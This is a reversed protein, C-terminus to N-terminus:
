MNNVLGRIQDPTLISDFFNSIATKKVQEPLYAWPGKIPRNAKKWDSISQALIKMDLAVYLIDDVDVGRAKAKKIQDTKHEQKSSNITFQIGIHKEDFTTENKEVEVGRRKTKTSIIFDIKEEVDQYANGPTISLGLDSHDIAIAELAGMMIQEAQVGLQESKIGARDAIKQYAESKLADRMKTKEALANGLERNVNDTIRDESIKQALVKRLKKGDGSKDLEDPLTVEIGMHRATIITGMSLGEEGSVSFRKKYKDYSVTRSHESQNKLSDLIEPQASRASSVINAIVDELLHESADGLFEFVFDAPDKEPTKKEISPTLTPNM